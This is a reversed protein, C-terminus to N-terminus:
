HPIHQGSIQLGLLQWDHIFKCKISSIFKTAEQLISKTNSSDVEFCKLEKRIDMGTSHFKACMDKSAKEEFSYRLNKRTQNTAAYM